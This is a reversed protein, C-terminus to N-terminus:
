FNWLIHFNFLMSKFLWTLSFIVLSILFYRSVFYFLLGACLVEHLAKRPPGHSRSCEWHLPGLNLGKEPFRIRCAVVLLDCPEALLYQMSCCLSFIRLTAVLVRGLWIFVYMSIELSLETVGFGRRSSRQPWGRGRTRVRPLWQHTEDNTCIYWKWFTMYHFSVCAYTTKNHKAKNVECIRTKQTTTKKLLNFMQPLGDSLLAMPVM